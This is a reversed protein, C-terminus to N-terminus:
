RLLWLPQMASSSTEYRRCFLYCLCFAAPQQQQIEYSQHPAAAALAELAAAVTAAHSLIFDRVQPLLSLCCCKPQHMPQPATAALAELAAALSAAHSVIFDRVQLLLTYCLVQVQTCMHAFSLATNRSSSILRLQALLKRAPTFGALKWCPPVADPYIDSSSCGVVMKCLGAFSTM